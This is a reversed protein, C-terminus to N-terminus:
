FIVHEGKFGVIILILIKDIKYCKDTNRLFASLKM